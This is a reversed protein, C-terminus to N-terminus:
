VGYDLPESPLRRRPRLAALRDPGLLKLLGPWDGPGFVWRDLWARFGELTGSEAHYQAFSAHDRGYCGQLPSPFAGWPEHVVAAVKLAPLLVLNPDALIRGTPWIEEAVVLVRQAALAAERTVGLPGWAHCHGLADARQVHVITVDPRLAPVLLLPAGSWPDRAARFDHNTAAIDSGLLSRTPIYPVGLSGALLALSLTLNSHDAVALPHPEGQETARRYNHGLGASVNGVWAAIVRRAAGAGILQDFLMDSIPGILTLDRKGQRIIEHGAAFPIAAELATGMCVSAGDPVVRAIADRLSVLKSASVGM